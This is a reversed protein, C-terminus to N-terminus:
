LTLPHEQSSEPADSPEEALDPKELPRQSFWTTLACLVILGGLCGYGITWLLSQEGLRWIPELLLLYGFLGVMSGFNSAAYLFYPDGADADRTSAFWKQLLTATSAVVFFPLGVTVLLLGLLWFKPEAEYPRGALQLLEASTVPVPLFLFPLALMVVH